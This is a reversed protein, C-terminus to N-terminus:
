AHRCDSSTTRLLPTRIELVGRPLRQVLVQHPERAYDLLSRSIPVAARIVFIVQAGQANATVPGADEDPDESVAALDSEDEVRVNEGRDRLDTDNEIKVNVDSLLDSM